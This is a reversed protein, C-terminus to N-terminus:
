IVGAQKWKKTNEARYCQCSCTGCVDAVKVWKTENPCEVSLCPDVSCEQVQQGAPCECENTVDTRGAKFLLQLRWLLRAPLQNGPCGGSKKAALAISFCLALCISKM